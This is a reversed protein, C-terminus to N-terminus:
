KVMDLNREFVTSLNINERYNVSTEGNVSIQVKNVGTLEILSNTIAYITVEPTVSYIQNLFSNDLNVYCIGDRVAVSVIKTAPNIVPGDKRGAALGTDDEQPGAILEEMVLRELSINSNYVKTRSVAQLGTGDEDAFYLQLKVKEYTNIENGANDIFADASMVGVVSGSADVLPEGEVLFSVYQVDKVQSLTRVIAARNLIETIMEQERYATNFDLILQEDRLRMSLLAFGGALPAHYRLREPVTGLQETLEDLLEEGDTTETVYDESIVSTRDHNVYYVKYHYQNREEGKRGCGTLIFLLLMCFFGSLVMIKGTLKKM